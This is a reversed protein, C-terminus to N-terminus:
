CTTSARGLLENWERFVFVESSGFKQSYKCLGKMRFDVVFLLEYCQHRVLISALRSSLHLKSFQGPILETHFKSLSFARFKSFRRFGTELTIKLMPFYWMKLLRMGAYMKRSKSELTSSFSLREVTTCIERWVMVSKRNSFTLDYFIKRSFKNVWNLWDSSQVITKSLITIESFFFITWTPFQLESKCNEYSRTILPSFNHKNSNKLM